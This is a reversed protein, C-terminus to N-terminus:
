VDTYLKSVKCDINRTLSSFVHTQYPALHLSMADGCCTCFIEETKKRSEYDQRWNFKLHEKNSLHRIQIYVHPLQWERRQKFSITLKINNFNQSCPIFMHHGLGQHPMGADRAKFLGLPGARCLNFVMVYVHFMSFSQCM